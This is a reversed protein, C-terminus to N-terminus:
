KKRLTIGGSVASIEVDAKGGNMSFNLNSSNVYRNEREPEDSTLENRIRGNVQTNLLFRASTSEPVTLSIRGNVTSIEVDAEDSLAADIDIRGGVSGVDLNTVSAIELDIDGNVSEAAVEESKVNSTIDGNVVSYDVRTPSSDRDDIEGNVTQLSVRGQLGAADISGNVTEVKVSGSLNNLTISANVVDLNTSNNLGTVTVAGNTGDLRVVSGQPVEIDLRSFRDDVDACDEDDKDIWCGRGDRNDWDWDWRWNGDWRNNRKNIDEEFSINGNEARLEYEDVQDGLEGSIHFETGSTGTIRVIANTMDISVLGAADMPRREDIPTGAHATVALALLAATLATHKYSHM